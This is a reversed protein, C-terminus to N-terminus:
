PDKLTIMGKPTALLNVLPSEVVEPLWDNVQKYFDEM